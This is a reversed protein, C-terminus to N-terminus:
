LYMGQSGDVDRPATQQEPTVSAAGAAAAAAQVASAATNSSSSALDYHKNGADIGLKSELALRVM